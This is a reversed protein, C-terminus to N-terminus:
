KLIAALILFGAIRGAWTAGTIAEPSVQRGGWLIASRGLGGGITYGVGAALGLKLAGGIM